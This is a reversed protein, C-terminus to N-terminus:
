IGTTPEIVTGSGVVRTGELIEFRDGTSLNPLLDAAWVWLEGEAAEGPKLREFGDEVQFGFQLDSGKFRLASRYGPAIAGSRGGEATSLLRLLARIRPRSV